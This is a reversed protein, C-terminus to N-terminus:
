LTAALREVLIPGLAINTDPLTITSPMDWMGGRRAAHVASWGFLIPVFEIGENQCQQVLKRCDETCGDTLFFLVRRSESRLGLHMMGQEIAKYAETGGGWCSSLNHAV